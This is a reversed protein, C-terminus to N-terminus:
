YNGVKSKILTASIAAQFILPAASVQSRQTLPTVFEPDNTFGVLSKGLSQPKRKDL